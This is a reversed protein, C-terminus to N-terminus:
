DDATLIRVNDWGKSNVTFTLTGPSTSVGNADGFYDSVDTLSPAIFITRDRQEKINFHHFHGTVLVNAAAVGPYFRGLAQKEWWKWLTNMAGGSMRAIHGHTFSVYYGSLELTIALEDEPIRWDIHKYADNTNYDFIDYVAEFVGVDTNDSKDTVYRNGSGRNEGHNGGVAGVIVRPALPAMAVVVNYVGRRVIKAQQRMNAQVTYPQHRYFGECNEHLDGLGVIAIEDIDTGSKRLRALEDTLLDPLAALADLQTEVGGGDANGIQWDSLCVVFTNGGKPQTKKRSKRKKSVEELMALLDTDDEDFASNRLRIKAKFSYQVRSTADDGQNERGWGDWATMQITNGDIEYIEPNLGYHELLPGWDDPAENLAGTIIEGSKSEANWSAGPNWGTPAHQNPNVQNVNENNTEILRARLSEASPKKAM